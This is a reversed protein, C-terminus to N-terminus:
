RRLIEVITVLKGKQALYLATESGVTGGGIVVVLEGTERRGLLVDIATVVKPQDVGPIKPVIPIGGSAIFVCDPHMARILEPTAKKGLEVTVGVKKVQRIFYDKLRRYDKKFDPASAPLLNGGLANEKEWLVVDHGRLAAVRAAEMGGPGGGVVLVKKKRGTSPQIAFDKEMGTMPNVSCSVYKRLDTRVECGEHDGICPIIDAERGQRVKNAWEPDALLPRGLAIFDAKGELLVREALEPYGLKGVTIVPITSVQKVRAALDVMCGQPLTTPPHIWYLNDECGADVHLADAGAMELRRAIELGEDIERGGPLYHTLGYRYTVPMDAGAGRKIAQIVEGAFRMRNELSGGYRDTRKNWLPTMFQDLLGGKHGHIDICDIGADRAIEAAFEYARIMTEIAEVTMARTMIRPNSFCPLVSPALPGDGLTGPDATRGKGASLQVSIKTGYDHVADALESLRNVYMRDDILPHAASLAPGKMKRVVGFSGTVILGVGGKARTVYYDIGRQSLRGDPEEFRTGMPSMVIRNKVRMKGIRGPEFLRM